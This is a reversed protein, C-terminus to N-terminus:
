GAPGKRAWRFRAPSSRPNSRVESATPRIVEEAIAQYAGLRLGERFAHKVLRDEGSHFSIIGVRGGPRLCYPAVRLLQALNELENNVAIRLAQFTRAAPHPGEDGSIPVPERRPPHRDGKGPGGRRAPPGHRVAGEGGKARLIIEVLQGTRRIPRQARAQVIRRAIGAADPEDALDRLMAALEEGAMEALLDAATRPVRPGLRMDLPGDHKYSLGRAPDDIQMSSVGLDALLVDCGDLVEAALVKALAAFNVQHLALPVGPVAAALREGTRRLQEADLDLGVLRGTPGIRRCFQEAHGGYGITCDVVVQGARPELRALVEEVLVPVHTGAPTRGQQRVHEHIGPYAQADLEKYRQEFARPHTGRYRARRRREPPRPEGPQGPEPRGGGADPPDTMNPEDHVM